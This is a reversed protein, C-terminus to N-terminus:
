RSRDALAGMVPLVLVQLVVSLSVMAPFYAGPALTIGLPHVTGTCEGAGLAGGSAQKAASTLFPGLFVSTVTTNFASMAWDYFYWGTRERPTVVPPSAAPASSAAIM